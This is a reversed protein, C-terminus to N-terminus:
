HMPFAIKSHALGWVSNTQASALTVTTLCITSRFLVASQSVTPRSVTPRSVTSRPQSAALRVVSVAARSCELLAPLLTLLPLMLLM